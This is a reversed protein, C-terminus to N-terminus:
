RPKCRLFGPWFTKECSASTKFAAGHPRKLEPVLCDPIGHDDRCVAFVIELPDIARRPECVQRPPRETIWRYPDGVAQIGGEATADRLALFADHSNKYPLNASKFGKNDVAYKALAVALRRMSKDLSVGVFNRDRTAM